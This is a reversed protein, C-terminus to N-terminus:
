GVLRPIATRLLTTFAGRAEAATQEVEAHSLPESGIGTAQNTICSLGVVRFGAHVAAIVEHVTSMGVADGGLKQFMRVEASTEYSPGSVGVYVGERLSLGIEDAAAAVRANLAPDYAVSMDPFRAGLREDNPGLLPNAGTANIHDAIIMLDGPTYAPNLGGSANTVLLTEAGLQRLVRIPFVVAEPPYGEYGHVRGQMAVVVVGDLRGIVLNGKHGSVSSQPFHPLSGYPIATAEELRDAFAGLGSGLVVAVAPQRSDRSRVADRTEIVSPFAYKQNM